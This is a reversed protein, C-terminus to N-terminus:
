DSQQTTEVVFRCSTRRTSSVHRARHLRSMGGHLGAGHCLVAATLVDNTVDHVYKWAADPVAGCPVTGHRARHPAPRTARIRQGDTRQYRVHLTFFRGVQDFHRKLQHTPHAWALFRTDPTCM